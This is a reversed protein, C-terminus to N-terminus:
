IDFQEGTKKSVRVPKGNVVVVKARSAQANKTDYLMVNSVALPAEMQILGGAQGLMPNPKVAKTVMNLGEVLVKGKNRFVYKITGTKGADKGAIIVVM